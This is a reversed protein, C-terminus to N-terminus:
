ATMRCSKNVSGVVGLYYYLSELPVFEAVGGGVSGNFVIQSGGM